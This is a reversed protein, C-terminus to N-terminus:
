TMLQMEKVVTADLMMVAFVTLSTNRVVCSGHRPCHTRFAAREDVVWSIAVVFSQGNEFLSPLRERCPWESWTGEDAADPSVNTSVLQTEISRAVVLAVLLHPLPPELTGLHTVDAVAAQQLIARREIAHIGDRRTLSTLARVTRALGLLVRSLPVSIPSNYQAHPM